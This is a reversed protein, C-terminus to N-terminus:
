RERVEDGPQAEGTTLDAVIHDDRQPGTIKVEGVKGGQRYVGLRQEMVPLRGIPFNLVVFRGVANFSTVRGTLVPNPAVILPADGSNKGGPPRARRPAARKDSELSPKLDAPPAALAPLPASAASAGPVAEFQAAPRTACGVLVLVVTAVSIASSRVGQTLRAVAPLDVSFAVPFV